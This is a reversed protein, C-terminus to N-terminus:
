RQMEKAASKKEKNVANRSADIAKNQEYAGCVCHDWTDGIGCDRRHKKKPLNGIPKTTVAHLTLLVVLCEDCVSVSGRQGDPGPKAKTAITTPKAECRVLRPVDGLLLASCGYLDIPKLAQCRLLDPPALKAKKM